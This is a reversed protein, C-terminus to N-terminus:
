LTRYVSVLCVKDLNVEHRLKTRKLEKNVGTSSVINSSEDQVCSEEMGDKSELIKNDNISLYKNRDKESNDRLLIKNITNNDNDVKLKVNDVVSKTGDENTQCSHNIIVDTETHWISDESNNNDTEVLIKKKKDPINKESDIIINTLRSVLNHHSEMKNPLNTDSKM